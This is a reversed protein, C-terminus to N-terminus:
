DIYKKCWLYLCDLSFHAPRDARKIVHSCMSTHICRVDICTRTREIAHPRTALRRVVSCTIIVAPSGKNFNLSHLTKGSWSMQVHLHLESAANVVDNRSHALMKMLHQYFIPRRRKLSWVTPIRTRNMIKTM